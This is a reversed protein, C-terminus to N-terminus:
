SRRARRVSWSRVTMLPHRVFRLVSWVASLQRLKRDREALTDALFRLQARAEALERATASAVRVAEVYGAPRALTGAPGEVGPQGTGTGATTPAGTATSGVAAAVEADTVTFGAMSVLRVALRAPTLTVSWPHPLGASQLRVAVEFMGRLFVPRAPGGPETGVAVPWLDNGDDVVASPVATAWPVLDSEGPEAPVGLWTAYRTVLSRVAVLDHRGCADVIEESLLPGAPVRRLRQWGLAPNDALVPGTMGTRDTVYPDSGDHCGVAVVPVPDQSLHQHRAVVVWAPAVAYAMGHRVADRALRVPDTAVVTPEAGGAAAAVLRGALDRVSVDDLLDRHIVLRADLLDPYVALRASSAMGVDRLGALLAEHGVEYGDARGDGSAVANLRTLGFANRAAVVLTGGPVVQGALARLAASWDQAAGDPTTVGDLGALAVVLDYGGPVADVAGCIVSATALRPDAALAEADPARRVLVTVKRGTLAHAVVPVPHAGAFLVTSAGALLHGLYPEVLTALSGVPDSGTRMEAGVLAGPDEDHQLPTGAPEDTRVTM